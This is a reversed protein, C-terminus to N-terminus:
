FEVIQFRTKVRGKCICNFDHVSDNLFSVIAAFVTDFNFHRSSRLFNLNVKCNFSRTRCEKKRIQSVNESTINGIFQSYQQSCFARVLWFKSLVNDTYVREHYESLQNLVIGKAVRLNWEHAAKRINRLELSSVSYSSSLVHFRLCKVVQLESRQEFIRKMTNVIVQSVRATFFIGKTDTPIVRRTKIIM